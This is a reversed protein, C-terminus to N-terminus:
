RVASRRRGRAPPGGMELADLAERVRELNYRVSSGIKFYPFRRLTRRDKRLTHVSISLERAVVHEDVGLQVPKAESPM